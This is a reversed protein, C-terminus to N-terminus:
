QQFSNCYLTCCAPLQRPHCREQLFYGRLRSLLSSHYVPFARDVPSQLQHLPLKNSFPLHRIYHGLVSKQDVATTDYYTSILTLTVNSPLYDRLSIYGVTSAWCCCRCHRSGEDAHRIWRELTGTRLCGSSLTNELSSVCLYQIVSQRYSFQSRPEVAPCRM